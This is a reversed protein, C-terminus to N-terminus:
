LAVLVLEKSLQDVPIQYVKGYIIRQLDERESRALLLFHFIGALSLPYSRMRDLSRTAHFRRLALDFPVLSNEERYRSIVEGLGFGPDLAGVVEEVTKMGALDTLHRIPVAGGEILLPILSDGPVSSEKGKLLTLINRVDIEESIFQRVVWEDGQFFLTRALLNTYYERELARSVPFIDLSKLFTELHEMVTIGYGFKALQQVVGDVTPQAVLHRIDDLSMVGATVGAPAQRDSIISVDSESILRGYAKSALIAVINEVDWWKLYAAVIGRGAFPAAEYAFRTATVFHRNIAAELVDEDKFTEMAKTVDLSYSTGDLLRTIEATDRASVLAALTEKGLFHTSIAKLRGMSSAYTTDSM